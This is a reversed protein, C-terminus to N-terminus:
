LKALVSESTIVCAQFHDLTILHIMYQIIMESASFRADARVRESMERAVTSLVTLSLGKM